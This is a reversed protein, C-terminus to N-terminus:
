VTPKINQNHRFVNTPDYKNKLVPLRDHNIGFAAKIREFGEETELGVRNVHDSGTTSPRMVEGLERM